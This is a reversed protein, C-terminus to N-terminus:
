GHQKWVEYITMKFYDEVDKRQMSLEDHQQVYQEALSRSQFLLNENLSNKYDILEKINGFLVENFISSYISTEDDECIGIDYGVFHTHKKYFELMKSDGSLLHLLLCNHTKRNELSKSIKNNLLWDNDRNELLFYSLLKGEFGQYKNIVEEVSMEEVKNGKIINKWFSCSSSYKEILFFKHM